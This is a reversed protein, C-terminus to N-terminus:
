VVWSVKVEEKRARWAEEEEEEENRASWTEEEEECLNRRRRQTALKRAEVEEERWKIGDERQLNLWLNLELVGEQIRQNFEDEEQSEGVLYSEGFVEEEEEAFKRQLRGRNEKGTLKVWTEETLRQWKKVTLKQWTEETLRQWTKVTLKQWTKQLNVRWGRQERKWKPLCTMRRLKTERSRDNSWGAEVREKTEIDENIM